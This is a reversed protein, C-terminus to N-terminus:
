TVIYEFDGDYMPHGKSITHCVGNIYFTIVYKTDDIVVGVDGMKWSNGYRGDSLLRIRPRKSSVIECTEAIFDYEFSCKQPNDMSNIIEFLYLTYYGMCVGESRSEKKFYELAEDYKDFEIGEDDDYGKCKGLVYWM